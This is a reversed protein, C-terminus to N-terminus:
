EQDSERMNKIEGEAEDFVLVDGEAADEIEQKYKKLIKDSYGHSEEDFDEPRGITVSWDCDTCFRDPGDGGVDTETRGGCDPCSWWLDGTKVM